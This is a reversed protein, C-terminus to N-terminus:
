MSGDIWTEFKLLIYLVKLIIPPDLKKLPRVSLRVSPLRITGGGGGARHVPLASIFKRSVILNATVATSFLNMNELSQSLELSNINRSSVSM